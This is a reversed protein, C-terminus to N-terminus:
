YGRVRFGREAHEVPVVTMDIDEIKIWRSERAITPMLADLNDARGQAEMEVTGDDLNTVWGTLDLSQAAYQARYRFGVGQVEGSIRYHRREMM